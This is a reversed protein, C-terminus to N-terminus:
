EALWFCNHGVSTMIYHTDSLSSQIILQHEVGHLKLLIEAIDHCIPCFCTTIWTCNVNCWLKYRAVFMKLLPGIQNGIKCEIDPFSCQQMTYHNAHEDRTHYIMPEFGLNSTLGYVILKTNAAERYKPTREQVFVPQSPILTINDLPDDHRGAFQQILSSASFDM